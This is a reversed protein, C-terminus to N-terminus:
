LGFGFDQHKINKYYLNQKEQFYDKMVREADYINFKKNKQLCFDKLELLYSFTNFDIVTHEYINEFRSKFDIALFVSSDNKNIFSNGSVVYSTQNDYNKEDDFEQKNNNIIEITNLFLKSQEFTKCNVAIKKDTIIRICQVLEQPTKM